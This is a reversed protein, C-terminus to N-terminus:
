RYKRSPYGSDCKPCKLGNTKIGCKKCHTNFSVAEHSPTRLLKAILIIIFLVGIALGIWILVMIDIRCSVM